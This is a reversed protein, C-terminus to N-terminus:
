KNCNEFVDEYNLSKNFEEYKQKNIIIKKRKIFNRLYIDTEEINFNSNIIFEDNSMYRVESIENEILKNM